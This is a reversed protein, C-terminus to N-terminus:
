LWVDRLWGEWIPTCSSGPCQSPGAQPQKAGGGQAACPPLVAASRWGLSQRGRVPLHASSRCEARENSVLDAALYKSGATQSGLLLGTAADMYRGVDGDEPCPSGSGEGQAAAGAGGAAVGAPRVLLLWPPQLPLVEQGATTLKTALQPPLQDLVAASQGLLAEPRGGSEVGGTLPVGSGDGPLPVLPLGARRGVGAALVALTLPTGRRRELVDPLLLPKLGDYVWEFPRYCYRHRAYLVQLAAACPARLSCPVVVRQSNHAAHASVCGAQRHHAYLVQLAAAPADPTFAGAAPPPLRAGAACTGAVFVLEWGCGLQDRTAQTVESLAQAKLLSEQAQAAARPLGAGGGAAALLETSRLQVEAALSDLTPAPQHDDGDAEAEAGPQQVDELIPSFLEALRVSQRALLEMGREAALAAAAASPPTAAQQAILQEWEALAQLLPAPSNNSPATPTLRVWSWSAVRRTNIPPTAPGVERTEEECSALVDLQAQLVSLLRLGGALPPTTSVQLQEAGSAHPCMHVHTPSHTHREREVNLGSQQRFLRRLADLPTESIVDLGAVGTLPLREARARRLLRLFSAYLFRESRPM